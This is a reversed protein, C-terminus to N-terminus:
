WHVAAGDLDNAEAELEQATHQLEGAIDPAREALSCIEAAVLRLFAVTQRLSNTPNVMSSMGTRFAHGSDIGAM